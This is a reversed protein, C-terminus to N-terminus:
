EDDNLRSLSPVPVVCVHMPARRAVTCAVRGLYATDGRSPDNTGVLVLDSDHETAHAVIAAAPDGITVRRRSLLERVESEEGFAPSLDRMLRDFLAEVRDRTRDAVKRRNFKLVSALVDSQDDVLPDPVVHIIELEADFRQSLGVATEVVRRSGETLDLAVLIRRVVPRPDHARMLLVPRAGSRIMREAVSGLVDPQVGSEGSAGMVILQAGRARAREALTEKEPGSWVIPGDLEDSDPDIDHYNMLSREAARVLEAEIEVADEGLPAYPFLVDQMFQPWRDVVHVLEVRTHDDSLGRAFSLAARSSRSFDVPVLIYDIDFM